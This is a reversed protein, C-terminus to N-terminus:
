VACDKWSVFCEVSAETDLTLTLVMDWITGDFLLCSRDVLLCSDPIHVVSSLLCRPQAGRQVDVHAVSFVWQWLIRLLHPMHGVVALKPDAQHAQPPCPGSHSKGAYSAQIMLPLFPGPIGATTDQLRYRHTTVKPGETM